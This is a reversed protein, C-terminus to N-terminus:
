SNLFMRLTSGSQLAYTRRSSLVKKRMEGVYLVESHKEKDSM